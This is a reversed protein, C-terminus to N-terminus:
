AWFYIDSQKLFETLSVIYSTFGESSLFFSSIKALSSFPNSLSLPHQHQCPSFTLNSRLPYKGATMSYGQESCQMAAQTLSGVIRSVIYKYILHQAVAIVIVIDLCRLLFVPIHLLYQCIRIINLPRLKYTFYQLTQRWNRTTGRCVAGFSRSPTNLPM